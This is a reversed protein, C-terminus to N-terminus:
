TRDVPQQVILGVLPPVCRRRLSARKGVDPMRAGSRAAAAGVCFVPVRLVLADVLLVDITIRAEPQHGRPAARPHRRLESGRAFVVVCARPGGRAVPARIPLARACGFFGFTRM